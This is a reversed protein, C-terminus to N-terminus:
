WNDEDACAMADQVLQKDGSLDYVNYFGPSRDMTASPDIRFQRRHAICLEMGAHKMSEQVRKQASYTLAGFILSACLIIGWVKRTEFLTVLWHVWFVSLAFTKFAAALIPHDVFFGFDLHEEFVLEAIRDVGEIVVYGSCLVVLWTFWKHLPSHSIEIKMPLHELNRNFASVVGCINM